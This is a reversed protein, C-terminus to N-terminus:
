RLTINTFHIKLSFGTGMFSDNKAATANMKM